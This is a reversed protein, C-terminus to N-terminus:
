PMKHKATGVPDIERFQAELLDKLTAVDRLDISHCSVLPEVQTFADSKLRSIAYLLQNQKTNQGLCSYHDANQQLKIRLQTIFAKLKTKDGSFKDPDPHNPCPRSTSAHSTIVASNQQM